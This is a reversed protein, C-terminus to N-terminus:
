SSKRELQELSVLLPRLSMLLLKALTSTPSSRAAARHTRLVKRSSSSKLNSYSPVFMPYTFFIISLSEESPSDFSYLKILFSATLCSSHGRMKFM